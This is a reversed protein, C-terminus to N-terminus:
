DGFRGQYWSSPRSQPQYRLWGWATEIAVARIHREGGQQDRTGPERRWEPVTDAHAWGGGRGGQPESVTALRLVRECLGVRWHARGRAPPAAAPSQRHGRRARPCDRAPAGTGVRSDAHPPIARAGMGAGVPRTAGRARALRGMPAGDEG